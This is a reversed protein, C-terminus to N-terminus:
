IRHASDGNHIIDTNFSQLLSLDDDARTKSLGLICSVRCLLFSRFLRPLNLPFPQFALADFPLLHSSTSSPSNLSPLLDRIHLGVYKM